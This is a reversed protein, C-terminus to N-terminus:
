GTVRLAEVLSQPSIDKADVYLDVKTTAAATLFADLTPVKTGRFDRGSSWSGADLKAVEEATRERILAM